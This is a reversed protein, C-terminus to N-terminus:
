FPAEDSALFAAEEPTTPRGLAINRHPFRGFRQVVKRHRLAFDVFGRMVSELEPPAALALTTFLAVSREQDALAESHELPLYVFTREAPTLTDAWGRDLMRHALPIAQASLEYGRAENRHVNLSFQDLLVILALLGKPTSEWEALTGSGASEVLASFRARIQEDTEKEGWFWLRNRERFYAPTHDLDGFWFDLIAKAQPNLDSM